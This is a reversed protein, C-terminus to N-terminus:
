ERDRNWEDRDTGRLTTTLDDMVYLSENIFASLCPPRKCFNIVKWHRSGRRDTMSSWAHKGGGSVGRGAPLTHTHARTHCLVGPQLETSSILM